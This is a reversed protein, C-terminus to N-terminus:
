KTEKRQAELAAQIARRIRERYSISMSNEQAGYHAFVKEAEECMTDTVKAAEQERTRQNQRWDMHDAIARLDSATFANSDFTNWAYTDGVNQKQYRWAMADPKFIVGAPLEPEVETMPPPTPPSKSRGTFIDDAMLIDRIIAPNDSAHASDFWAKEANDYGEPSISM